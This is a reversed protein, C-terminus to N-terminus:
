SELQCQCNARLFVASPDGGTTNATRREVGSGLLGWLKCEEGRGTCAGVLGVENLRLIYQRNQM